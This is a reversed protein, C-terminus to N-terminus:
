AANQLLSVLRGYNGWNVSDVDSEYIDKNNEYLRFANRICMAITMPGVRPIYIGSKKKADEEFNQVFSFNLCTTNEKIEEGRIKEFAKSPVGTIITDSERLAEERTISVEKGRKRMVVGGEIDFSYVTAGDNMLMYALPQGVVDSRNFITIKKGKFTQGSQEDVNDVHALIKLIGLSTCPLIAKKKKAIDLYRENAYLKESWFSTLGEVDKDPIIMEKLQKDKDGKFIPYFVFIGHISPDSNALEIRERIDDLKNEVLGLKFGVEDCDKELTRAYVMSAADGAGPALIGLINLEKKRGQKEYAIKQKRRVAIKQQTRYYHALEGPNFEEYGLRKVIEEHLLYNNGVKKCEFEKTKCLRSVHGHSLGMKDAAEETSYWPGVSSFTIPM